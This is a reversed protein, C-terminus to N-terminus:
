GTMMRGIIQGQAYQNWIGVKVVKKVSYHSESTQPDSSETM